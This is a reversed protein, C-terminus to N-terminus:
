TPVGVCRNDYHVTHECPTTHLAPYGRGPAMLCLVRSPGFVCALSVATICLGACAGESRSLPTARIGRGPTMLCLSEDFLLSMNILRFWVLRGRVKPVHFPPLGPVGGQPLRGPLGVRGGGPRAHRDGHRSPAPPCATLGGASGIIISIDDKPRQRRGPSLGGQGLPM